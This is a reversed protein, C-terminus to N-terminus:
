EQTKPAFLMAGAGFGLFGGMATMLLRLATWGFTNAILAGLWHIRISHEPPAFMYWFGIAGALGAVLMLLSSFANKM